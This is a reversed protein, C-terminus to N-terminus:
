KEQHQFHNEGEAPSNINSEAHRNYPDPKGCKPCEIEKPM